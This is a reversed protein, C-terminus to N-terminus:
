MKLVANENKGVWVADMNYFPSQPAVRLFEKSKFPKRLAKGHSFTAIRREIGSLSQWDWSGQIFLGFFLIAGSILFLDFKLDSIKMGIQLRSIRKIMTREIM